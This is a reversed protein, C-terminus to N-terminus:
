QFNTGLGCECCSEMSEVVIRPPYSMEEDPISTGLREWVERLASSNGEIALRLHLIM